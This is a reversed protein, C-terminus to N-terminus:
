KGRGELMVIITYLIIRLDLSFSMNELYLLDFELRRVMEEVSGAYGYKVQGWSTIGPRIKHLHRYHPAHKVIQEIYHKREPRPGVISMDGTLVNWFQPLEDLRLKRLWRGVRTVRPDDESSLAPGAKEADQRMSRFKYITFPRGGRGIRQQSFIIPGKSDLKILVALVLYIPILLVLALLSFCIDFTRKAVVEWPKMIQPYVEILPAGLIHSAKVTGLLYDYMEPVVKIRTQTQECIEIVSVLQDRQEKELAIIVEEIRRSHIAHQLAELHGYRRLKGYLVNEETDLSVFGKIDYGLSRKMEKLERYIKQAQPGSGVLLTPFGLKRRRIRIQTRTTLTLHILAVAIFQLFFYILITYLYHFNQYGPVDKRDDLFVAFFIVMVGLATYKAIQLIEQVRSRRLPRNYLGAVAYILLWYGAVILATVFHWDDILGGTRGEILKRRLIVSLLWVGYSAWLDGVLYWIRQLRREWTLSRSM